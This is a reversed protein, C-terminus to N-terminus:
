QPEDAEILEQITQMMVDASALENACRKLEREILNQNNVCKKYKLQHELSAWCDMAITRIQIEALIETVSNGMEAESKEAGAKDISSECPFSVIMHYSRYGNDKPNRIYDKEEVVQNQAKLIRAVAYVDRTFNCIIRIGVADHNETLAAEATVPLGRRELKAAMSEASKIRGKYHEVPNRDASKEHEKQIQEAQHMLNRYVAELEPLYSGYFEEQTM